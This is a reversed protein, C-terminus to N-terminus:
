AVGESDLAKDLALLRRRREVPLTRWTADMESMRKMPGGGKDLWIPDVRCAVAIKVIHATEKILGVEIRHITVQSVGARKALEKQSLKATTRAEFVREGLTSMFWLSPCNQIAKAISPPFYSHSDHLMSCGVPM